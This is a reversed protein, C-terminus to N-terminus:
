ANKSSSVPQRQAKGAGVRTLVYAVSSRRARAVSRATWRAGTKRPRGARDRRAVRGHYASPSVHADERSGTRMGPNRSRVADRVKDQKRRDYAATTVPSAHDAANQATVLDTGNELMDTIMTRRFDHTPPWPRQYRPHGATAKKATTSMRRRRGPTPAAGGAAPLRQQGDSRQRVPQRGALLVTGAPGRSM